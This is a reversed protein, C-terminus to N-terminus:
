RIQVRSIQAQLPTKYDHSSPFLVVWEVLVRLSGSTPRQLVTAASDPKQRTRRAWRGSLVEAISSLVVVHLCANQVRPQKSKPHPANSFGLMDRLLSEGNRRPHVYPCNLPKLGTLRRADSCPPADSPAKAVVVNVNKVLRRKGVADMLQKSRHRGGLLLSDMFLVRIAHPHLRFSNDTTVRQSAKRISRISNNQM